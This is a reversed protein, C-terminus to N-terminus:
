LRVVFINGHAKPSKGAEETRGLVGMVTCDAKMGLWQLACISQRM